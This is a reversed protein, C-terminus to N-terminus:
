NQTNPGEYERHTGNMAFLRWPVHIEKVKYKNIILSDM